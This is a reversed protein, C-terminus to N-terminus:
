NASSQVPKVSGCDAAVWTGAVDMEMHQPKGQVMTDSVSHMTYSTPSTLKFEGTGTTPHEGTCTFSYKVSNGSRSIEQQQCHGDSQPVSARAAQEKSICTRVTRPQGPAAAGHSAMMQEVMQRQQPSMNAMQAQMKAMADDM